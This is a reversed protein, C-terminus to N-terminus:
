RDQWLMVPFYIKDLKRSWEVRKSGYEFDNRDLIIFLADRLVSRDPMAAQTSVIKRLYTKDQAPMNTQNLVEIVKESEAGNFIFEGFATRIEPYRERLTNFRSYEMVSAKPFGSLLGFQTEMKKDSWACAKPLKPIMINTIWKPINELGIGSFDDPHNRVVNAAALKNILMFSDNRNDKKLPVLEFVMGSVAMKLEDLEVDNIGTKYIKNIGCEYYDSDVISIADMGYVARRTQDLMAAKDWIDSRVGTGRMVFDDVSTLLTRLDTPFKLRKMDAEFDQQKLKERCEALDMGLMESFGMGFENNHM